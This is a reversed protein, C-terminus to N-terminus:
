KDFAAYICNRETHFMKYRWSSYTEGNSTDNEVQRPDRLLNGFSSDISVGKLKFKPPSCSVLDLFLCFNLQMRM